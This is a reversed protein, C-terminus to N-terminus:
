NWNFCDGGAWHFIWYFLPMKHENLFRFVRTNKLSVKNTVVNEKTKSITTRRWLMQKKWCDLKKLIAERSEIHQISKLIQLM